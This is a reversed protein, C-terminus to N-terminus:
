LRPAALIPARAEKADSSRRARAPIASRTSPPMELQEVLPARQANFARKAVGAGTMAAWIAIAKARESGAPFINILLALTTPFIMAAGIGMAARAAILAGASTTQSALASPAAFSGLGLALAGRRGYRDGLSGAALLLGAFV